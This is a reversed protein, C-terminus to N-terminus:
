DKTLDDNFYIFITPIYFDEDMGLKSFNETEDSVGNEHLTKTMDMEVFNGELLAKWTYSHSHKNYDMYRDKIDDVTEESCVYLTHDAHTCMNTIKVLRKKTTKKGVIYQEDKWWPNEYSTDWEIAAPPPVHIFRGEPTYPMRVNREPDIHTKVEKTSADFWHSIDLGAVKELPRSLEGRNAAILATLDFVNGFISVWCDDFSNHFSIEEETFYRVM